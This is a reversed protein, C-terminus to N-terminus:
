PRVAPLDVKVRDCGRAGDHIVRPVGDVVATSEAVSPTVDHGPEAWAAFYFVQGTSPRYLAPTASRSCNWDGLLLQDNATGLAFRDPPRGRELSVTAMGSSWTVPVRCGNGAVDALVTVTVSSSRAVKPAPTTTAGCAAGSRQAGQHHEFAWGALMLVAAVTAGSACVMPVRSHRAPWPAERRRDAAQRRARLTRPETAQGFDETAGGGTPLVRTPRGHLRRHGEIHSRLADALEGASSPRAQPRRSMSQEVVAALVAPVAPAAHALPEARGRDAARLTAAPNIGHYPLRGTLVEYCVVGLSYIDSAANPPAGKGVAPDLYEATGVVAGDSPLAEAMWRSLGFDSLLPEGDGDMLINSPKVDAHLISRAHAAALADAVKAMLIAGQGPSLRVCGRLLDALSGSDAHQMAIVLGEDDVVMDVVKAIHPHDLEAIMAAEARIGEIPHEDGAWFVRKLAVVQRGACARARYVSGVSGRGLLGEVEYEGLRAVERLIAHFISVPWWGSV